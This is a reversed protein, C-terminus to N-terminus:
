KRVSPPAAKNAQSSQIARKLHPLQPDKGEPTGELAAISRLADDYAELDYALYAVTHHVTAPRLLRGKRVALLLHTLGEQKRGQDVLLRGLYLELEGSSPNQRIQDQVFAITRERATTPQAADLLKLRLTEEGKTLVASLDAAEFATVRYGGISGGVDVWRSTGTGKDRFSLKTTGENTIVGTLEFEAGGLPSALLLLVLIQRWNM